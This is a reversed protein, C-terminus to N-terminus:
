IDGVFNFLPSLETHMPPIIAYARVIYKFALKLMKKWKYVDALDMYSTAIHILEGTRDMRMCIRFEAQHNKSAEDYEELERLVFGPGHFCTPIEHLNTKM